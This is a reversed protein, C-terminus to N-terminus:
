PKEVKIVTQTNRRKGALYGGVIGGLLKPTHGTIAAQWYDAPYQGSFVDPLTLVVYYIVAIVSVLFGHLMFRSEIKRGVWLAGVLMFIFSGIRVFNESITGRGVTLVLFQFAVFLLIEAVLGANVIRGWKIKM